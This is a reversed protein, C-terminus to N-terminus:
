ANTQERDQDELLKEIGRQIAKSPKSTEGNYLRYVTKESAPIEEALDRVRSRGFLERFRDRIEDWRTM